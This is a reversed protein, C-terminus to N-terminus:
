RATQAVPSASGDGGRRDEVHQPAHHQSRGERGSTACDLPQEQEVADAGRWSSSDRERGVHEDNGPILAPARPRSGASKVTETDFEGQAHGPADFLLPPPREATSPGPFGNLSRQPLGMKRLTEGSRRRRRLDTSEASGQRRGVYGDFDGDQRRLM